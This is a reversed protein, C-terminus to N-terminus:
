RPEFGDGGVHCIIASILTFLVLIYIFYKYRGPRFPRPAYRLIQIGAQRALM